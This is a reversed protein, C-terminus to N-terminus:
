PKNKMRAASTAPVWDTVNQIQQFLKPQRKATHMNCRKKALDNRMALTVVLRFNLRSWGARSKGVGGALSLFIL